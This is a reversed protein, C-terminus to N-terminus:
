CPCNIMMMMMQGIWVLRQSWLSWKKGVQEIEDIEAVVVIVVVAVDFAVV